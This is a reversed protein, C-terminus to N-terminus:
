SRTWLYEPKAYPYPPRWARDPQIFDELAFDHHGAAASSFKSQAFERLTKTIADIFGKDM